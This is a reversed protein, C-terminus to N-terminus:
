RAFIIAPNKAEGYFAIFIMRFSYLATLLAGIIGALWLMIGEAKRHFSYWLIQDKSYFGATILPLASLSASGILFTYFVVPMKKGSAEWKSSIM